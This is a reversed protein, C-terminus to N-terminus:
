VYDYVDRRTYNIINETISEILGLIAERSKGAFHPTIVVSELHYLPSNENIPEDIVTDLFATRIKYSLIGRRLDSENIIGGRSTNIIVSGTKMKSIYRWDLINKTNNRLPLHISLYDVNPLVEGISKFHYIQNFMNAELPLSNIEKNTIGIVKIGIKSLFYAVHIGIEGLGWICISVDQLERYSINKRENWTWSGDYAQQSWLMFNREAILISMLVYEAIAEKVAGACRKFQIGRLELEPLDVKDFGSGWLHFLKLNKARDIEQKSLRFDVMIDVKSLIHEFDIDGRMPFVVQCYKNLREVIRQKYENSLEISFLVIM